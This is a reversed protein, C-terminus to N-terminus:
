AVDRDAAERGAETLRPAPVPGADGVGIDARVCSGCGPCFYESLVVDPDVARKRVQMGHAQMAEAASRVRAVCADRYNAEVGGLEEGCATCSWRGGRVELSVGVEIQEPPRVERAPAGDLREERIRRRQQATAAEDVADGDLVVGYLDRAAEIGTYGDAVDKAVLEPRRLLPDGLGGGGGSVIVMVDTEYMTLTGTKAPMARHEGGLNDRTPLEGDDLLRNVDSRSQVFYHSAAGPLGGGAGRPPVEACSNFATGTMEDIGRLALASSM